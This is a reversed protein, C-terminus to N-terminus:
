PAAEGAFIGLRGIASEVANAALQGLGCISADRMVRGIEGILVLEDERSGIPRDAALRHLAEEQRVTGVRCPVCQGCSEDRFFGAIRLVIQALNVSEDFLMVAGSGLSAGAARAGEFSLELDLDDPGVFGGAAGGLLVARLESGGRVGGAIRILERLTLGHEVEYVGPSEVCGSLCFLRPGTSEATGLKAYELGGMSVAELVNLLTEVNNIGTPKGFLGHEVPFPPKNRPEGRRGEISNFLATEEGCIYAGAGIRLEVDFGFGAGMVDDGLLRRARAQEIAHRLASAAGPYEGRVYVYGTESGTAFGAITLAEVVAFPDREMVIRDKFTGPESEDANCVFYHPRTAQRAVAEWKVGTPFAAGGRGLLRSDKVEDIVGQPGIEIARRLPEYGGSARYADLSAPDVVGVRRLLRLGERTKGVATQPASPEGAGPHADHTDFREFLLGGLTEATVPAVARDQAAPGAAQVFAAPARECLGLCPSRVIRDAREPGLEVLVEDILADAGAVKCAVDDCVHVVVRPRPETSFMAYFSAVGYAEAPPVVLRRAVYMLGGESIWGARHQLAHLAPLLLHRRERDGRGGRAVHGDLPERAGGSWGSEPPGLVDDVAEREDDTPEVASLHLDV